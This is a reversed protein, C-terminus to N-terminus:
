MSNSNAHEALASFFPLLCLLLLLLLIRLSRVLESSYCRVSFLLLFMLFPSFCFSSIYLLIVFSSCCSVTNGTSITIPPSNPKSQSHHSGHLCSSCTFSSCSSSSRFFDSRHVITFAHDQYDSGFFTRDTHFLHWRTTTFTSHVFSRKPSFLRYVLFLLSFPTNSELCSFFRWHLFFLWRDRKKRFRPLFARLLNLSLM